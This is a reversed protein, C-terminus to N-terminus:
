AIEASERQLLVLLVLGLVTFMRFAAEQGNWTRSQWMLFWEGGVTLFAVLWMVMGSTLGIIGVTAARRFSDVTERLARLMQFAGCWCLLMTLIEWGIVSLYFASHWLPSHLARWMGRNDPFTTDMLLVHRVFQFNSDYDTLNNFVILTYYLAVSSLLAIKALRFSMEHGTLRLHQGYCFV